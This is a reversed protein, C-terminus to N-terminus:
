RFVAGTTMALTKDSVIRQTYVCFRADICFLNSRSFVRAIVNKLAGYTGYMQMCGFILKRWMRNPKMQQISYILSVFLEKYLIEREM